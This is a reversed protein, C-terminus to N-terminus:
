PESLEAFFDWIFLDDAAPSLKLAQPYYRHLQQWLRNTTRRLEAKLEDEFRSLERLRIIEPTDIEVLRFSRRDTRLSSALVLADRTDDKAGAVTFRDRFRDVQKPNISFVAFGRDLLTEVLAGWSTEIAIAVTEPECTTSRLLRDVLDELEDTHAADYQEIARGECDLLVIRHTQTGWDIGVFFRYEQDM